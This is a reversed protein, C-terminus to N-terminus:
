KGKRRAPSRPGASTRLALARDLIHEAAERKTMVELERATTRDVLTVRNTELGLSDAPANLVVLDIRKRALKARANKLGSTTELAFGVFVQGKKRKAAARALVDPNPALKVTMIASTRKIKENSPRIPRYDAVAAAMLVLDAHAAAALVARELEVATHVRQLTVGGPPEVSTEGAVLTVLAGRDRAAEALAFGMRGSSRNTLVRVPDLPEETRGATVLVNVGKLSQRRDLALDLAEVISEVTALRGPGELGSALSGSEPGVLRVGRSRLTRVNEQTAANKWMELDMAPCVVLPARTALAVTTLADPAEGHVLRAILDATAPAIVLADAAEAVDVHAVRGRVRAATTKPVEFPERQRGWLDRVVPNGSLVEFTLPTVFETAAATMVVIVSAGGDKLRRVLECAKYAAIGGSVGVVISRGRLM